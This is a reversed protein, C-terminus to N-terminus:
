TRASLFRGDDSRGATAARARGGAAYREYEELYATEKESERMFTGDFYRWAGKSRELGGARGRPLPARMAEAFREIAAGIAPAVAAAAAVHATFIRLQREGELRARLAAQEGELRQVRATLDSTARVLQESDSRRFLAMVSSQPRLPHSPFTETKRIKWMAPELASVFRQYAPREGSASPRFKTATRRRFRSASRYLHRNSLTFLACCFKVAIFSSSTFRAARRDERSLV